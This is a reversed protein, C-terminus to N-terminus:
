VEILLEWIPKIIITIDNIQIFDKDSQSIIFGNKLGLEEIANALSNVERKKTDPSELNFCAQYLSFDENNSSVIFDVENGKRTLYYNIFKFNQRLYIYLMNELLPGFDSTIKKSLAGIIGNDIFYIKQPNILKAKESNSFITISFILYSDELYTLYDYLKDKSTAIGLSKLTKYFKNISFYGSISSVAHHILYKLAKINSVKYREVIDRFIVVDIYNQLVLIQQDKDLDQIEPFGGNQFYKSFCHVIKNKLNTSVPKNKKYIINQHKLIEQFSYPFIETSISRGRLSTAIEKSLLKSSSGTLTICINENDHLRRIFMEWADIRQIEDFFFYCKKNKNDPFMEYYNDLILQFDKIGFSFLREDEFNIYIIRNLPVSQQLFSNILQYAYFTKGTRRMGVICLIKNDIFINDKQRNKVLYNTKDHFDVIIQRITERM